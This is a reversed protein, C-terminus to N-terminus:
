PAVFSHGTLTPLRFLTRGRLGSSHPRPDLGPNKKPDGFKLPRLKAAGKAIIIFLPENSLGLGYRNACLKFFLTIGSKM